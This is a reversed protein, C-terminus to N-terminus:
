HIALEPRHKLQDLGDAYCLEVTSPGVAKIYLRANEGGPPFRLNKERLEGSGRTLNGLAAQPSTTYGLVFTNRTPVGLKEWHQYPGNQNIVPQFRDKKFRGVFFRFPAEGPAREGTPGLALLTEGPLLKLLGIAVGTKATPLYPNNPDGPPPRHVVIKQFPVSKRLEDLAPCSASALNDPPTWGMMKEQLVAAFLAQVLMSQSSNGALLIHIEEPLPRGSFAQGMAIFFRQLGKGVRKVLYHNLPNRDIKLDVAVKERERTLLEVHITGSKKDPNKYSRNNAAIHFDMGTIAKCLADGLVDTKRRPRKGDSNAAAQNGEEKSSWQFDEWIPRILPMLLSSNTMAVHSQDIFAEHGPFREADQPCIFPIRHQRCVELNQQFVQYVLNAVLNEGGLYMDGSAGFHEIVSEYGQREEQRTPLRYLGYDFDTSGGGFDFVGYALGDRTTELSLEELACAAYAAPESGEERVSFRKMEPSSLLAPPMSRQLGRAFSALIREKVKRPYTIPFTMYYELFLGSARHNIFLGLFYAYLEIPDLPDDENVVLAQGSVPAATNGLRLEMETGTELDAIRLPRQESAKLPWQKIGTLLSAVVRQNGQNERLLAQAEHSFHFHEWQTLPRYADRNWAQLLKPLNLFALVTPNQYDEPTPSQFFDNMGVRLLTTKGQERCAVVTSSTGFDIAVTGDRLDLEPNRAEWPEELIIESWGESIPAVPQYLEWLGKEMDTLYSPELVPLRARLYDGELLLRQLAPLSPSPTPSNISQSETLDLIERVREAAGEIGKPMLAHHLVFSLIDRHGVRHIPLITHGELSHSIHGSELDLTAYADGQSPVATGSLVEKDRIRPSNVFAEEMAVTQLDELSPIEWQSFAYIRLRAVHNFMERPTSQFGYLLWLLNLQNDYYYNAQKEFTVFRQRTLLDLLEEKLTKLRDKVDQHAPITAQPVLHHNAVWIKSVKM